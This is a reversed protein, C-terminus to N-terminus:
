RKPRARRVAGLSRIDKERGLMGMRQLAFDYRVPDEPDLRRLTSTIDVAMAWSPNRYSTLGAKRAIKEVHTDV